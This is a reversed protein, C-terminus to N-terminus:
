YSNKATSYSIKMWRALMRNSKGRDITSDNYPSGCHYYYYLIGTLAPFLIDIVLHHRDFIRTFTKKNPECRYQKPPQRSVSSASMRKVIIKLLSSQRPGHGTRQVYSSRYVGDRLTMLYVGVRNLIFEMADILEM